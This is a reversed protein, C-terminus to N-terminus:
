TWAHRGSRRAAALAAPFADRAERRRTEEREVLRGAAFAVRSGRTAPLLDRIRRAAVAADQHEGAVDQLRKASEVFRKAAKGAAPEALEAAYRARKAAVRVSHLDEDSPTAPLAGIRKELRAFAAAALDVLSTGGNDEAPARAAEALQDLVNEYRESELGELLDARAISREDALVQVLREAAFRDDDPLAAVEDRLHELLVDLDRVPGLLDGLWALEKALPRTPGADLVPRAARL